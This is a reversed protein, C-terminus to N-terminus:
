RYVKKMKGRRFDRRMEEDLRTETEWCGVEDPDYELVVSTGPITRRKVEVRKTPEYPRRFSNISSNRARSV